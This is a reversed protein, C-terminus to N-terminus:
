YKDLHALFQVMVRWSGFVENEPREGMSLLTVSQFTQTFRSLPLKKCVEQHKPYLTISQSRVLDRIQARSPTRHSEWFLLSLMEQILTLVTIPPRARM